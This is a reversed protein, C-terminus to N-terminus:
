LLVRYSRGELTFDNVYQSGIFAGITQLASQFDVNLAELQDRNIDIQLQPTSATFQTFASGVAPLQNAQAIIEQANALFNDINM